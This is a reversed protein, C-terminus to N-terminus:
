QLHNYARISQTVLSCDESSVLRMYISALNIRFGIVNQWILLVILLMTKSHDPCVSSRNTVVYLHLDKTIFWFFGPFVVCFGFVEVSEIFQEQLRPKWDSQAMLQAPKSITVRCLKTAGQKELDSRDTYKCTCHNPTTRVGVADVLKESCSKEAGLKQNMSTPDEAFSSPAACM